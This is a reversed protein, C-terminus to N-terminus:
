LSVGDSGVVSLRELSGENGSEDPEEEWNSGSEEEWTEEEEEFSEESEEELSSEPEEEWNQVVGRREKSQIKKLLLPCPKPFDYWATDNDIDFRLQWFGRIRPQDKGLWDHCQLFSIRLGKRLPQVGTNRPIKPLDKLLCIEPVGRAPFGGVVMKLGPLYNNVLVPNRFGQPAWYGRRIYAQDEEDWFYEQFWSQAPHIKERGRALDRDYGWFLRDDIRVPAPAWSGFTVLIGNSDRSKRHLEFSEKFLSELKAGQLLEVVSQKREEELLKRLRKEESFKDMRRRIEEVLRAAGTIMSTEGSM